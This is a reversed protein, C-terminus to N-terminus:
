FSDLMKILLPFDCAYNTSWPHLTNRKWLPWNWNQLQGEYGEWCTLGTHTGGVDKQLSVSTVLKAGVVCCAMLAGCKSCISISRKGNGAEAGNKSVVGLFVSVSEWVGLLSNVGARCTWDLRLVTQDRDYTILQTTFIISITLWFSCGKTVSFSAVAIIIKFALHMIKKIVVNELKLFAM